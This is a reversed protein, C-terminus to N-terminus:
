LADKGNCSIWESIHPGIFTLALCPTPTDLWVQYEVLGDLEASKARSGDSKARSGASEVETVISPLDEGGFSSIPRDTTLDLCPFSIKLRSSRCLVQQERGILTTPWDPKTWNTSIENLDPRIEELNPRINNLDVSTEKYEPWIRFFGVFKLLIQSIEAFDPLTKCLGFDVSVQDFISSM